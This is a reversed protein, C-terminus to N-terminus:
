FSYLSMIIEICPVNCLSCVYERSSFVFCWSKKDFDDNFDDLCICHPRVNQVYASRNVLFAMVRSSSNIIWLLFTRSACVGIRIQWWISNFITTVSSNYHAHSQKRGSKSVSAVYMSCLMCMLICYFFTMLRLGISQHFTCITLANSRDKTM